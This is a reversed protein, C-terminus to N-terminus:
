LGKKSDTRQKIENNWRYSAKQLPKNNNDIFPQQRSPPTKCTEAYPLKSPSKCEDKCDRSGLDNQVKAPHPPDSLPSKADATSSRDLIEDDNEAESGDDNFVDDVFSDYDAGNLRRPRWAPWRPPGPPVEM